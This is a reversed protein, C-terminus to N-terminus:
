HSQKDELLKAIIKNQSYIMDNQKILLWNQEVMANLDNLMAREGNTMNLSTSAKFYGNMYLEDTINKVLKHTEPDLSELGKLHLFSQIKQEKQEQQEQKEEASKFLGM